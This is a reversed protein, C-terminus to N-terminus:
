LPAQYKRGDQTDIVSAEFRQKQSLAWTKRFSM